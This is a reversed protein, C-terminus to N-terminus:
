KDELTIRKLPPYDSKEPKKLLYGKHKKFVPRGRETSTEYKKLFYGKGNKFEHQSGSTEITLTGVPIYGKEKVEPDISIKELPRNTGAQWLFDGEPIIDLEKITLELKDPFVDIVMYNVRPNYGFLGGHAVQQIGDRETCTIAHVEGCLYLVVNYKAMTQWFQSERGEEVMMGSSSWKRVPGLVPDHGMVIIHDVDSNEKMVRELWELQKGTVGSKIRGQSSEGEEFVDVSIFLVNKHRWYFATGKMHDPGNLPMKMHNKFEEKYAEVNKLAGDYAWPNDGLEHDGIATYYKLGHANMRAKWATYYRDAFYHIGKEGPRDKEGHWHGMVLDGPVVLFDPNEDKVSELVFSLTEEWGKQPFDTDVNLFDPMSVFRWKNETNTQGIILLSYMSLVSLLLFTKM